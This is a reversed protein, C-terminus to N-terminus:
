YKASACEADQQTAMSTVLVANDTWWSRQHRCFRGAGAQCAACVNSSPQVCQQRSSHKACPEQMAVALSSTEATSTLAVLQGVARKRMDGATPVRKLDAGFSYM